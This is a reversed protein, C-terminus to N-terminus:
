HRCESCHVHREQWELPSTHIRAQLDMGDVVVRDDVSVRLAVRVGDTEGVGLGVGSSSMSFNDIDQSSTSISMSQEIRPLEMVLPPHHLNILCFHKMIIGLIEWENM